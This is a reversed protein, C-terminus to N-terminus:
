WFIKLVSKKCNFFSLICHHKNTQSMPFLNNHMQSPNPCLIKAWVRGLKHTVDPTGMLASSQIPIFWFTCAMRSEISAL